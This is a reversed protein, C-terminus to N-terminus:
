TNERKHKLSRDSLQNYRAEVVSAVTRTRVTQRSVIWELSLM